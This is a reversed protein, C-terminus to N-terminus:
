TFLPGFCIFRLMPCIIIWEGQWERVTEWVFNLIEINDYVNVGPVVEWCFQLRESGVLEPGLLSGPREQCATPCAIWAWMCGEDWPYLGMVETSCLVARARIQALLFVCFWLWWNRELVINPSMMFSFSSLFQM